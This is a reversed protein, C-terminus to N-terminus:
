STDAFASHWFVCWHLFECRGSMCGLKEQAEAHMLLGGTELWHMFALMSVVAQTESRWDGHYRLFLEGYLHTM